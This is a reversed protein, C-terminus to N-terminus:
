DHGLRFDSRLQCAPFLGTSPEIILLRLPASAPLGARSTVSLVQVRMLLGDTPRSLLSGLARCRPKPAPIGCNEPTATLSM